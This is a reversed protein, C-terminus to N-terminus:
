ADAESVANVYVRPNTSILKRGKMKAGIKARTEPSTEHGMKAASLNARREPAQNAALINARHALSKPRGKLAQSIKARTQASVVRGMQGASIKARDELSRTTGLMRQQMQKCTEASLKYPKPPKRNPYKRSKSAARIVEITEPTHTAVGYGRDSQNILPGNPERGIAKIFAAEIDL